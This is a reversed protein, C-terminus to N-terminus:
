KKPKLYPSDIISKLVTILPELDRQTTEFIVALDVVFDPNVLHHKMNSMVRWPIRPHAAQFEPSVASAAESIATLSYVIALSRMRDVQLSVISQRHSFLLAEEAADLM